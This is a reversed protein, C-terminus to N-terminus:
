ETGNAKSNDMRISRVYTLGSCNTVNPTETGYRLYYILDKLAATYHKVHDAINQHDKKMQILLREAETAEQDLLYVTEFYGKGKLHKIFEEVNCDKSIM